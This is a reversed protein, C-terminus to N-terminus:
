QVQPADGTIECVWISSSDSYIYHGPAGSQDTCPHGGPDGDTITHAETM